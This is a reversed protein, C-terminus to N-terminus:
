TRELCGKGWLSKCAANIMSAGIEISGIGSFHTNYTIGKLLLSRNLQQMGMLRELSVAAMMLCRFGVSINDLEAHPAPQRMLVNDFMTPLMPLLTGGRFSLSLSM